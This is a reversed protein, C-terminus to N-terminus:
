AGLTYQAKLVILGLATGFTNGTITIDYDCKPDASLGALEWLQKGASAIPIGAAATAGFTLLTGAGINANHIDMGNVICDAVVVAGGDAATHYLGIDIDTAGALAENWLKMWTIIANSPLRFMRVTSTDTDAAVKSYQSIVNRVFQGKLASDNLTAPSADANTVLTSKKATAM